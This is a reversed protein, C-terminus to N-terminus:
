PFIPYYVDELEYAEDISGMGKVLTAGAAGGLAQHKSAAAQSRPPSPPPPTLAATNWVLCRAGEREFRARSDAAVWEITGDAPSRVKQLTCHLLEADKCQEALLKRLRKYAAGTAARARKGTLEVGHTEGLMREFNDLAQM